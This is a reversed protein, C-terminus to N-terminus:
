RTSRLCKEVLERNLIQDMAVGEANGSSHSLARVFGKIAPPTDPSPLEYTDLGYRTTHYEQLVALADSFPIACTDKTRGGLFQRPALEDRPIWLLDVRPILTSIADPWVCLSVLDGGVVAYMIRPIFIDKAIEESRLKRQVNWRWVKELEETGRTRISQPAKEGELIASYGFENGHKWGRTFGEATYPGAGMGHTQPDHISCGFREVFASVEPEAELVFFTPRYYNMNFMVSHAIEEEGDLTQENHDFTFYVGTDENAYCAQNEGLEYHARGDFYARFQERTIKPSTFYLDYSM